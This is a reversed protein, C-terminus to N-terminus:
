FRSSPRGRLLYTFLDTMRNVCGAHRDGIPSMQIIEGEILEVRDDEDLIGADVMRHYDDVTFLKRKIEALMGDTEMAEIRDSPDSHLKSEPSWRQRKLVIGKNCRRTT